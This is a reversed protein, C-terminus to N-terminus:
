ETCMQQQFHGGSVEFALRTLEFCSLPNGNFFALTEQTQGCEDRARTANACTNCENQFTNPCAMGFTTRSPNNGSDKMQLLPLGDVDQIELNCLDQAMGFHSAHIFIGDCTMPVWGQESLYVTLPGPMDYCGDFM